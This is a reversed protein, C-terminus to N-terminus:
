QKVIREIQIEKESIISFFYIGPKLDGTEVIEQNAKLLVSKVLAGTISRVEITMIKQDNGKREVKVINQAPNPYVNVLQSSTVQVPKINATTAARLKVPGFLSANKYSDNATAATLVMSGIFNERTRGGDNDCYAVSLGMLKNPTLMVRSAEPNTLTFTESYNKIAIEWLYKNTGITDMRVNINNTYNVGEGYTGVDIADYKLSIHYSFANNNREHGGMSRNEDVFVEVCDDNWYNDTPNPYNDFLKDDVVEVLLYLYLNDWAVKFKGEFDGAAMNGNFPIWVQNIPRWDAKGWCADNAAGDIVVPTLSQVAFITDKQTQGFSHISLVTVILLLLLSRFFM